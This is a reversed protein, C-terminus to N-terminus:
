IQLQLKPLKRLIQYLTMELNTINIITENLSGNVTLIDEIKTCKDFLEEIKKGELGVIFSIQSEIRSISKILNNYLNINNKSYVSQRHSMNSNKSHVSYRQSMNSNKSYVSQRQSMNNKKKSYNEEHVLSLIQLYSNNQNTSTLLYLYYENRDHKIFVDKIKCDHKVISSYIKEDNETIQFYQHNNRYFTSIIIDNKSYIGTNIEEEDEEDKEIIKTDFNNFYDLVSVHSEYGILIKDITDNYEISVIKEDSYLRKSISIKGATVLDMDYVIIEENNDAEIGLFIMEKPVFTLNNIKYDTKIKDILKYKKNLVVVEQAQPMTLYIYEEDSTISNFEDNGLSIKKIKRLYVM